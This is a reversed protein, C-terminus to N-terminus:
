GELLKVAYKISLAAEGEYGPFFSFQKDQLDRWLAHIKGHLNHAASVYSIVVYFTRHRLCSIFKINNYFNGQM